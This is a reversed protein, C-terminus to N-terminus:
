LLKAVKLSNKSLRLLLILNEEFFVTLRILMWTDKQIYVKLLYLFM